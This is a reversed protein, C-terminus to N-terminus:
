QAAARLQRALNQGQQYMTRGIDDRNAGGQITVPMNIVVSQGGGLSQGPRRVSLLEGSAVPVTAFMNDNASYGGPITIEGGTAMGQSRFGIHSTRPDQTYFPSLLETNAATAGTNSDVSTTLQVISQQLDAIKQDRAISAPLTQLWAMESQLNGAQAGKDATQSNQLGVLQDYASIKDDVTSRAPGFLQSTDYGRFMMQVDPSSGTSNPAAAIKSLAASIGGSSYGTNALQSVDIDFMDRFAQLGEPSSLGLRDNTSTYQKGGNTNFSSVRGGTSASGIPSFTAELAKQAAIIESNAQSDAAKAAQALNAALTNAAIAAAQTASAGSNM